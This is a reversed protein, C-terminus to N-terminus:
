LYSISEVLLSREGAVADCGDLVGELVDDVIGRRQLEGLVTNFVDTVGDSVDDVIGRWQPEGVFGNPAGMGGDSVDDSVGRRQLERFVGDALDCVGDLVDDLVGRGMPWQLEGLVAGVGDVGESFLDNGGGFGRDVGGGARVM